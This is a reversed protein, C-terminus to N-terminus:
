SKLKKPTDRILADGISKAAVKRVRKLPTRAGSLLEKLKTMVEVLVRTNTIILDIVGKGDRFLAKVKPVGAQNEVKTEAEVSKIRCKEENVEEEENSIITKDLINELYGRLIFAVRDLFCMKSLDVLPNLMLHNVEGRQYERLGTSVVFTVFNRRFNEDGDVQSLSAIVNLGSSNRLPANLLCSMMHVDHETVRMRGDALPLSYSCTDFNSVLCVALKELIM